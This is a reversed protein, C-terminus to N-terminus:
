AAPAMRGARVAAKYNRFLGHMRTWLPGPMGTGVPKGDIRTVPIVDKTSSSLWVEEAQRFLELPLPTIRYPLGHTQALELTLLRTIGPLIDPGEPPTYIVGDLVAYVNAAAAETVMGNRVLISENAGMDLAQQRMLVNALLAISKIDCRGWRFDDAMVASVGRQLVDLSVPPMPNCMAFITPQASKPFAHDRPAVGRTVQLYVSLDAGPAQAVLDALMGRWQARSMPAEIRVAALSRSLRDLHEELKLLHGGLSPMVEYVGDAYIFGRDLVPVRAEELPLFSGNLYVQM